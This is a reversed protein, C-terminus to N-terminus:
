PLLPPSHPLSPVITASLGDIFIPCVGSIKSSGQLGYPYAMRHSGQSNDPDISINGTELIFGLFSTKSCSFECKEAKVFLRNELLRKLVRVSM